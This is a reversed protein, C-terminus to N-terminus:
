LTRYGALVGKECNIADGKMGGNVSSEIDESDEKRRICTSYIYYMYIFMLNQTTFICQYFMGISLILLSFIAAYENFGYSRKKLIVILFFAMFSYFLMIGILGMDILTIFLQPMTGGFLVKSYYKDAIIGKTNSADGVFASGIGYGFLQTGISDDIMDYAMRIKLFRGMDAEWKSNFYIEFKEKQLIDWANEKYITKYMYNGGFFVALLVFCLTLISVPNLKKTLIFSMVFFVPLIAFAIKTENLGIPVLLVFYAGLVNQNNKLRVCLMSFFIVLLLLSLTGSGGYGMLGTVADGSSDKILLRQLVAVPVCAYAIAIVFRNVKKNLGESNYFFFLAFLFIYKYQRLQLLIVTVGNGNLFSFFVSLIFYSAFVMLFIKNSTQMIAKKGRAKIGMMTDFCLAIFLLDDAVKFIFNSWLQLGLPCLLALSALLMFRYELGKGGIYKNM